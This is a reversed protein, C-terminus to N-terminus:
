PAVELKIQKEEIRLSKAIIRYRRGDRILSQGLEPDFGIHSLYIFLTM